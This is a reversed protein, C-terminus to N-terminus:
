ESMALRCDLNSQNHTRIHMHARQKKSIKRQTMCLFSLIVIRQVDLHAHITLIGKIVVKSLAPSFAQWLITVSRQFVGIREQSTCPLTSILAPVKQSIRLNDFSTRLIILQM